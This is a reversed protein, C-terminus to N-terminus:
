FAYIESHLENTRVIDFCRRALTVPSSLLDTTEIYKQIRLVLHKFNTSIFSSFHCPNGYSSRRRLQTFLLSFSYSCASPIIPLPERQKVLAKMRKARCWLDESCQLTPSLASQPHIDNTNMIDWVVQWCQRKRKETKSLREQFLQERIYFLCLLLSKARQLSSGM